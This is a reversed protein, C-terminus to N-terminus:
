GTYLLKRILDHMQKTFTPWPHCMVVCVFGNQSRPSGLWSSLNGAGTSAVMLMVRDKSKMQKVGHYDEEDKDIYIRNPLKNYFLGTQDANYVCDMSLDYHEMYARLTTTFSARKSVKDEESMEMEKWSTCCVKQQRESSLHFLIIGLRSITMGWSSQM